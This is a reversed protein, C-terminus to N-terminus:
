RAQQGPPTAASKEIVESIQPGSVEWYEINVTSIRGSVADVYVNFEGQGGPPVIDIEYAMGGHSLLLRKVEEVQGPYRQLAIEQARKEDLKAEQWRPDNAAAIVDVANLTGTLADCAVYYTQEGAKVVFEFIPTGDRSEFEMHALSGGLLQQTVRACHGADFRAGFTQQSASQAAAQSVMLSTLVFAVIRGRQDLGGFTCQWLFPIVAGMNGPAPAVLVTSWYSLGIFGSLVRLGDM